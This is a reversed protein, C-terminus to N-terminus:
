DRFGECDRFCLELDTVDCRSATAAYACSLWRKDPAKGCQTGIPWHAICQAEWDCSQDCCSTCADACAGKVMSQRAVAVPVDEDDDAVDSVDAVCSAVAVLVPALVLVAAIPAPKLM